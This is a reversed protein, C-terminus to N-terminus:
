KLKIKSIRDFLRGSAELESAAEESKQHHYRYGDPSMFSCLDKYCCDCLSWSVGKDTMVCNPNTEIARSCRSCKYERM